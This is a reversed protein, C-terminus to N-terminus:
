RTLRFFQTRNTAPVEVTWHTGDNSIAQPITVWVSGVWNSRLAVTSQAMLGTWGMSWSLFVTDPGSRSISLPAGDGYLRAVYRQGLEGIATFGGAVGIRGDPATAVCAIPANFGADAFSLDRSGDPNLRELMHGVFSGGILIKGDPQLAIAVVPASVGSPGADFNTDLSGNTNLRAIRYRPDGNVATFSGGMLVKGDPQLALCNVDSNAGTLGQGFTMDLTGDANLRAVHKRPVTDIEEFSGGIVVKHDPQVVLCDVWAASVNTFTPDLFGNSDLRAIGRGFIGGIVIKDDSQVAVANVQDNAVVSSNFNTDCQGNPLLQAINRWVVGESITTFKGALILKGDSQRAIARAGAFSGETLQQGFTGDFSGDENLRAIGTPRAGFAAPRGINILLKNDPQVLVASVQQDPGIPRANYALDVIGTREFRIVGHRIVRGRSMRGRGVGDALGGGIIPKGDSQLALTRAESVEVYGGFFSGDLSGDANLRALTHAGLDSTVLNGFVLLQGDAQLAISSVATLPRDFPHDFDPDVSGDSNLRALGNRIVGNVSGFRGGVLVQGNQQPVIALVANDAVLTAGGFGVDLLGSTLVRAINQRTIDGAKTFSGGFLISGDPQIAVSQITLPPSENTLSDAFTSDLSGDDNLRANSRRSVGNVASFSGGIVMKGDDQCAIAYVPGDPRATFNTDLSGDVNLRAFWRRLVDNVYLFDGGILVKGNTQIAVSRVLADAGTQGAGFAPDLSGDAKLRAIGGRMANDAISFDGGIIASGDSQVALTYVPGDTASGPYFAGDLSGPQAHTWPATLGVTCVAIFFLSRMGM